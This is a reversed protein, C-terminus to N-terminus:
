LDLTLTPSKSGSCCIMVTRNAARAAETLVSDRHEPVGDIVRVECTGCVGEKCSHPLDLGASMLTDLITQGPPIPISRGSRGLVVGFGGEVDPANGPTFYEVHVTEPARGKSVAAFTALM